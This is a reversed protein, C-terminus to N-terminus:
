PSPQALDSMEMGRLEARFGRIARWRTRRPRSAVLTVAVLGAAGIFGTLGVDLRGPQSVAELARGSAARESRTTTTSGPAASAMALLTVVLVCAAMTVAAFYHSRSPATM